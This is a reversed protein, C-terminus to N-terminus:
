PTIPCTPRVCAPNPTRGYAYVSICNHYARWEKLCPIEDASATKARAFLADVAQDCTPTWNPLKAACQDTLAVVPSMAAGTNGSPIPTAQVQQYSAQVHEISQTVQDLLRALADLDRSQKTMLSQFARVRERAAKLQEFYDKLVNGWNSREGLPIGTQEIRRIQTLASILSADWLQIDKLVSNKLDAGMWSLGPDSECAACFVDGYNTQCDTHDFYRDVTQCLRRDSELARQARAQSKYSWSRVWQSRGKEQFTYYWVDQTGSQCANLEREVEPACRGRYPDQCYAVAIVLLGAFFMRRPM